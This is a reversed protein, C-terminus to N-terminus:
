KENAYVTKLFTLDKTVENEYWDPRRLVFSSTHELPIINLFVKVRNRMLESSVKRKYSYDSIVKDFFTTFEKWHNVVWDFIIKALDQAPDSVNSFEWDILIDSNNKNTLLHRNRLDRHVITFDDTKLKWIEKLIWDQQEEDINFEKTTNKIRELTYKRLYEWYEGEWIKTRMHPKKAKLIDHLEAAINILKDSKDLNDWITEIFGMTVKWENM